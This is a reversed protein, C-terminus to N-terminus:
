RRRPSRVTRLRGRRAGSWAGHRLARRRRTRGRRARGTCRGRGAAPGCSCAVGHRLRSRVSRSRATTGARPRPRSARGRRAVRRRAARGSRRRGRSPSPTATPAREQRAVLLDRGLDRLPSPPRPLRMSRGVQGRQPGPHGLTLRLRGVDGVPEFGIQLVAVAPQAVHLRHPPRHGAPEVDDSCSRM